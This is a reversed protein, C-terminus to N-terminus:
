DRQESIKPFLQVGGCVSEWSFCSMVSCDGILIPRVYQVMWDRSEIGEAETEGERTHEALMGWPLILVTEWTGARASQFPWAKTLPPMPPLLHLCPSHTDKTFLAKHSTVTQDGPAEGKMGVRMQDWVVPIDDPRRRRWAGPSAQGQPWGTDRTINRSRHIRPLLLCWHRLLM